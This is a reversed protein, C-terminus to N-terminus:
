GVLIVTLTYEQNPELGTIHNIIISNSSSSYTFSILPNTTPYSNGQVRICMVGQIKTKLTSKLEIKGIPLNNSDVKVTFTTLLQNLNIFDVGKNLVFFIQELTSNVVNGLTTILEENEKPFDEAKILKPMPFIAM